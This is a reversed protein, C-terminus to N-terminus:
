VHRATAAKSRALARYSPNITGDAANRSSAARQFATTKTSCRWGPSGSTMRVSPLAICSAANGPQDGLQRARRETGSRVVDDPRDHRDARPIRGPQSVSHGAVGPDAPIARCLGPDPRLSRAVWRDPAGVARGLEAHVDSGADLRRRAYQGCCLGPGRVHIGPDPRRHDGPTPTAHKAEDGCGAARSRRGM